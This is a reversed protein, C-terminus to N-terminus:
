IRVASARKAIIDVDQDEDEESDDEELHEEEEEKESESPLPLSKPISKNSTVEVFSFSDGIQKIQNKLERIEIINKALMTKIQYIDNQIINVIRTDIDKTHEILKNLSDNTTSISTAAENFKNTTYILSTIGIGLNGITLMGMPNAFKDM